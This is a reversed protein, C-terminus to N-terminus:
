GKNGRRGGLAVRAYECSQARRRAHAADGALGERELHDAIEHGRDRLRALDYRVQKVTLTM